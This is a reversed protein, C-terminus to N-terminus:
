LRIDEYRVFIKRRQSLSLCIANNSGRITSCPPYLGIAGKGGQQLEIACRPASSRIPSDPPNLYQLEIAVDLLEGGGLLDATEGVEDMLVGFEKASRKTSPSQTWAVQDNISVLEPALHRLNSGVAFLPHARDDLVESSLCYLRHAKGLARHSDLEVFFFLMAKPPMEVPM